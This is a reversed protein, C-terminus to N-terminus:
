LALDNLNTKSGDKKTCRSLFVLERRVRIAAAIIRDTLPKNQIEM